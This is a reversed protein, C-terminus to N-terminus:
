LGIRAILLDLLSKDDARMMPPGMGMCELCRAQV